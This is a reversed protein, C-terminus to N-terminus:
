RGAHTVHATVFYTDPDLGKDRFKDGFKDKKKFKDGCKDGSPIKKRKRDIEAVQM